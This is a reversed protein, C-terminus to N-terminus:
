ECEVPPCNNWNMGEQVCLNFGYAFGEWEGISWPVGGNHQGQSNCEKILWISCCYEILNNGGTFMKMEQENLKQAGILKLKRLVM